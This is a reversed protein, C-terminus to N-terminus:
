RVCSTKFFLCINSGKMFGFMRGTFAPSFDFWVGGGCGAGASARTAGDRRVVAAGCRARLLVQAAWSRHSGLASLKCSGRWAEGRREEVRGVVEYPGHKKGHAIVTPRHHCIEEEGRSAV